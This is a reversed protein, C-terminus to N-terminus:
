DVCDGVLFDPAGGRYLGEDGGILNCRGISGGGYAEDSVVGM